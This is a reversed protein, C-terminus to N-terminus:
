EGEGKEKRSRIAAAIASAVFGYDGLIKAEMGEAVKACEEREAALAQRLRLIESAAIGQADAVSHADPDIQLVSCLGM